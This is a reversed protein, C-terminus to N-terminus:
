ALVFHNIWYLCKANTGKLMEMLCFLTEPNHTIDRAYIADYNVGFGNVTKIIQKVNGRNM